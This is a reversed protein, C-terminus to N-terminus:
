GPIHDFYADGDEPHSDGKYNKFISRHYSSRVPKRFKIKTVTELLGDRFIIATWETSVLPPSKSTRVRNSDNRRM